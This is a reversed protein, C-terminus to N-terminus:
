EGLHTIFQSPIMVPKNKCNEIIAFPVLSVYIRFGYLQSIDSVYCTHIEERSLSIYNDANKEKSCTHALAWLEPTSSFSVLNFANWPPTKEPIKCVDKEEYFCLVWQDLPDKQSNTLYYLNPSVNEIHRFALEEVTVHLRFKKLLSTM